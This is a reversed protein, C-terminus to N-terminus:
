TEAYRAHKGGATRSLCGRGEAPDRPHNGQNMPVISHQSRRVAKESRKTEKARRYRPDDAIRGRAAGSALGDSRGPTQQVPQERDPRRRLVTLIEWTGPSGEHGNARSESGPPVPDAPASGKYVSGVRGGCVFVVSARWSYSKPTRDCPMQDLQRRRATSTVRWWALSAEPQQDALEVPRSECGCPEQSLNLDHADGGRGLKKACSRQRRQRRNM